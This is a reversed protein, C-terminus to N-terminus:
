YFNRLKAIVDTVKINICNQKATYQHVNVEYQRFLKPVNITTVSTYITIFELLIRLFFM